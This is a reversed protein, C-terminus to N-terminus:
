FLEKKEEVQPEGKAEEDPPHFVQTLVEMMREKAEEDRKARYKRIREAQKKILHLGSSADGEEADEVRHLLEEFLAQEDDSMYAMAMAEEEEKREVGVM